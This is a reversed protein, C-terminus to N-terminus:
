AGALDSNKPSDICRDLRITVTSPAVLVAQRTSAPRMTSRGNTSQTRTLVIAMMAAPSRVQRTQKKLVQSSNINYAASNPTQMPLNNISERIAGHAICIYVLHNFQTCNKKSNDNFLENLTVHDANWHPPPSKSKM